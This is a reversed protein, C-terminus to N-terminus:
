SACLEHLKEIAPRDSKGLGHKAMRKTSLVDRLDKPALGLEIVGEKLLEFDHSGSRVDAALAEDPLEIDLLAFSPEIRKGKNGVRCLIDIEASLQIERGDGARVSGDVSYRLKELSGVSGRRLLEEYEVSDIPISIEIRSIKGLEGEFKRSKFDISFSTGRASDIRRLRVSTLEDTRTFRESLEFDRILEALGSRPLYHQLIRIPEREEILGSRALRTMPVFYRMEIEVPPEIRISSGIRSKGLDYDSSIAAGHAGPESWVEANEPAKARLSETFKGSMTTFVPLLEM